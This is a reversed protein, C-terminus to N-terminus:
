RPAYRRSTNKSSAGRTRHVAMTLQIAPPATYKPIMSFQIGPNGGIPAVSGDKKTAAPRWTASARASDAADEAPWAAGPRSCPQLFFGGSPTSGGAQPKRFRREVASSRHRPRVSTGPRLYDNGGFGVKLM